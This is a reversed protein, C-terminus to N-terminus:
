TKNEKLWKIAAEETSFVKRITKESPLESIFLYSYATVVPKHVLFATRVTKYAATVKNTLDSISLIDEKKLDMDADRLDYLSLFDGPLDNISDFELLYAKIDKATVIGSFKVFFIGSEDLYYNIM